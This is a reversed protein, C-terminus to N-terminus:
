ASRESLEVMYAKFDLDALIMDHILISTIEDEFGASFGEAKTKEVLTAYKNLVKQHESKHEAMYKYDLLDMVKEEHVFHSTIAETIVEIKAHCAEDDGEALLDKFENLLGGINDHEADIGIHGTRLSKTLRFPGMRIFKKIEALFHPVVIPKAIYADSHAMIETRETGAVEYGTVIIIPINQLDVDAQITKIHELGSIEPLIIDMLILEPRHEKALDFANTGDTSSIITFGHSELLDSFLKMCLTNDEVILIKKAMNKSERIIRAEQPDIM